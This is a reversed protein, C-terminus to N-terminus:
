SLSFFVGRSGSSSRSMIRPGVLFCVGAGALVVGAVVAGAVGACVAFLVCVSSKLARQEQRDVAWSSM